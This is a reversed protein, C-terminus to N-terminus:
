DCARVTECSAAATGCAHSSVPIGQAKRADDAARCDAVCSAAYEECGLSKLNACFSECGVSPPAPPAADQTPVPAPSPPPVPNPQPGCSPAVLFMSLILVIASKM